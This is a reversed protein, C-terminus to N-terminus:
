YSKRFVYLKNFVKGSKIYTSVTINSVGLWKAAAVQSSFTQVPVNDLSCIYITMANAPLKGYMPNNAGSQFANTPTICSMPNNAGIKADSILAKSEPTHTLGKFPAEAFRAFNYRLNAPLSFLIDLYHQERKLVDSSLCYELIVFAFHSLGHKVIASQLHPNSSNYRIHDMIRDALDVSSGIYSTGTPIYVFGYIGSLGDLAKKAIQLSEFTDLNEFSLLVTFTEIFIPM